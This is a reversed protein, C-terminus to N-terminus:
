ITVSLTEVFVGDLKDLWFRHIEWVAYGEPKSRRNSHDAPAHAVRAAWRRRSGHSCDNKQKSKGYLEGKNTLSFLPYLGASGHRCLSYIASAATIRAVADRSAAAVRCGPKLPRLADGALLIL